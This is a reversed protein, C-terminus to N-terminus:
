SVKRYAHTEQLELLTDYMFADLTGSHFSVLIACLVEAIFFGVFTTCVTYLLIGSIGFCAGTLIINKRGWRDALYGSPIELVMMVLMFVGQLLFVDGLTLDNQQFLPVLVPIFFLTSYAVHIAYLKWINNRAFTKTPTVDKSQRPRRRMGM